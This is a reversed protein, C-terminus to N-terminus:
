LYLKLRISDFSTNVHTYLSSFYGTHIFLYFRGKVSLEVAYAFKTAIETGKDISHNLILHYALSQISPFQRGM